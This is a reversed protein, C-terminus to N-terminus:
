KRLDAKKVAEEYSLSEFYREQLLVLLEENVAIWADPLVADIGCIPCLATRGKDVWATIQDASYEECCYFCGVHTSEKVAGRNCFSLHHVAEVKVLFSAEEGM